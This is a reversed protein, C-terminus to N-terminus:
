KRFMEPFDDELNDAVLNLQARRLADRLEAAASAEGCAGRRAGRRLAWTELARHSQERLDDRHAHSVADIDVESLGLHRSLIRWDRGVSTSVSLLVRSLFAEGGSGDEQTPTRADGLNLSQLALSVPVAEGAATLASSPSPATLAPTLPTTLRVTRLIDALKTTDSASLDGREEMLTFLQLSSTVSELPGRGYVKLCFKMEDLKDRTVEKAVSLLLKRFEVDEQDM